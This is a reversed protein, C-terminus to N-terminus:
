TATFTFEAAADSSAPVELADGVAEFGEQVFHLEMTDRGTNTLTVEFQRPIGVRVSGLDVSQPSVMLGYTATILVRGPCGTLVLLVSLLSAGTSM